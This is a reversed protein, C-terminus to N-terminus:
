PIAQSKSIKKGIKALRQKYSHKKYLFAHIYFTEAQIKMIKLSAQVQVKKVKLTLPCFMLFAENEVLLLMTKM